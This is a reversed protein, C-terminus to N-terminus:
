ITKSQEIIKGVGLQTDYSGCAFNKFLFIYQSSVFFDLLQCKDADESRASLMMIPLQKTDKNSRLIRCLEIGSMKPMMWDVILLDPKKEYITELAQEGNYALKISFGNKELNFKMLEIQNPEDDAILIEDM